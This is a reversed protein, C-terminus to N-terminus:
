AEGAAAAAAATEVRVKLAKNMKNCGRKIFPGYIFSFISLFGRFDESQVLKCNVVEGNEGVEEGFSEFKLTHQDWFFKKSIISGAWSFATADNEAIATKDTIFKWVVIKFATGPPAAPDSIYASTIFPNWQPYSGFDLIVKRVASPPAAITISTSISPM